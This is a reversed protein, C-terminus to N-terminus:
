GNALQTKFYEKMLERDIVGNTPAQKWPPEEHTM